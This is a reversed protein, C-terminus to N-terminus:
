FFWGSILRSFQGKKMEISNILKESHMSCTWFQFFINMHVQYCLWDLFKLWEAVKRLLTFIRKMLFKKHNSNPIKTGLEVVSTHTHFDCFVSQVLFFKGNFETYRRHLYKSHIKNHISYILRRFTFNSSQNFAVTVLWFNQFM